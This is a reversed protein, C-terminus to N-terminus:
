LNAWVEAQSMGRGTNKAIEKLAVVAQKTNEATKAADKNNLGGGYRSRLQANTAESSGFEAAKAFKIEKGLPTVAKKDALAKSIDVPKALEARTIKMKDRVNAFYDNVTNHSWPEKLKEQLTNFQNKNLDDLDKALTNVFKTANTNALWGAGRLTALGNLVNATAQAILQLGKTIAGQAALFALKMAQWGDALYGVAKQLYSISQAQGQVGSIVTSSAAMSSAAWSDMATQLVAFGEHISGGPGILPMLSTAFTEVLNEVRGKFASMRDAITGVTEDYHETKKQLQDYLLATIAQQKANDSLTGGLRNLGMKLAQAEIADNGMAVGIEHLGRARGAMAGKIKDLYTDLPVGTMRSAKEALTVFQTSLTAAASETYGESKLLGGLSVASKNFEDRSFGFALAMKESQETVTSGFEGFTFKVRNITREAEGAIDILKYMGYGGLGELALGKLSTAFEIVKASATKLGKVLKDTKTTMSIAISGILAM